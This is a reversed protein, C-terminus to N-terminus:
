TARPTRILHVGVVIMWGFLLAMFLRQAYGAFGFVLMYLAMFGFTACCAAALASTAASVRRWSEDRRISLSLLGCSLVMAPFTLAGGLAHLRGSSTRLPPPFDMPFIGAVLMGAGAISASVCAIRTLRTLPLTTVLGYSVALWGACLVFYTTTMLPGYAGLVHASMPTKIPSFEPQLLHMVVIVLVHYAVSVLVLRGLTRSSARKM